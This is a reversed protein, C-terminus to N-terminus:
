QSSLYKLMAGAFNVQNKLSELRDYATMKLSKKVVREFEAFYGPDLDLFYYWKPHRRLYDLYFENSYLRYLVDDRM